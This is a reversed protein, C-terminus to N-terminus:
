SDAPGWPGPAAKVLTAHAFYNMRLQFNTTNDDSSLLLM